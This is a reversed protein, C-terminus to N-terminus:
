FYTLLTRVYAGSNKIIIKDGISLPPLYYDGVYDLNDFSPGYVHYLFKEEGEINSVVNFKRGLMYTDLLGSYIGVGIFIINEDDIKKSGIVKTEIDIVDNIFGYGIECAKKKLCGFKDIYKGLSEADNLSFGGGVDLCDIDPYRELLIKIIKKEKEISNFQAPIHFHFGSFTLCTAKIAEIYDSIEDFNVGFRDLHKESTLSVRLLVSVNHKAKSLASIASHSDVIFNKVGLNILKTLNVESTFSAIFLIKSPLVNYRNVLNLVKKYEGVLFGSGLEKLVNIVKPNDNAKLPYYYSFVDTIINYKSKLLEFNIIEIM